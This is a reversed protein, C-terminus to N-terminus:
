GRRTDVRHVVVSGRELSRISAVSLHRLDVSTTLLGQAAAGLPRAVVAAAGLGLGWQLAKVLIPRRRGRFAAYTALGALTIGLSLNTGCRPHIALGSEGAKLRDLAEFVAARVESRGTPGYLTFGGWDSRGALRLGPHREDLVHITAHELAHNRRISAVPWLELPNM